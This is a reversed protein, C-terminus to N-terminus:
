HTEAGTREPGVTNGHQTLAWYAGFGLATLGIAVVFAGGRLRADRRTTAGVTTEGATDTPEVAGVSRAVEGLERMVEATSRPPADVHAERRTEDRVLGDLLARAAPKGDPRLSRRTGATTDPDGRRRSSEDNM